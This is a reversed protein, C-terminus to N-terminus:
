FLELQKHPKRKPLWERRDLSNCLDQPIEDLLPSPNMHLVRGNLSRRNVRSLILRSRARTMGVYFLRREEADDQSGFLKCPILLHECGTIFVVPWELGKAAHLSMLALRDGLFIAHDIARDLSLMDLFDELNGEFDVALHKLRRSADSAEESSCDFNHEALAQTIREPLPHRAGLTEVLAHKQHSHNSFFADYQKAFYANGPYHLTQLCRWIVNVPYRSVLPTEGSRVFPIGARDMASELADGQANLRFLVAIDGFAISLEGEHSDVRGSDLSFYTTGGILREVQEVIMEAEESETRCSSLAIHTEGPSECQLSKRKGMLAATAKLIVETSRYNRTLTVIGARPFDESFRHFSNVDAGRFGYIAQDPDGIAFITASGSHVLKKLLQVQTLNTDQYEDTFIWPFRKGYKFAVEPANTLLRATEVELDNYDLMGLSRLARQYEAFYIPFDVALPNGEFEYSEASGPPHADPNLLHATKIKPLARIFRTIARKGAGAELLCDRAINAADVDSCVTFRSPLGAKEHEIRLLDLCFRHFTSVYIKGALSDQLLRAIRQAMEKAAKRTFTLALVQEPSAVGERLLYAIRHTLTMTKGTGPGAVVLLHGGEHLVADKQEPNLPGIIPDNFSEPVFETQKRKKKPPAKPRSAPDPQTSPAKAKKEFLALQGSLTEKEFEAFLHIFGYQGDYGAERIVQNQRMRKIGEALLPGGIDQIDHVPVEMLIELEPGLELLLKEYVASIKKTQSGCELLESLIEVLPILSFFAKNLKPTDRDALEHIRHLVGITLPRACVPCIGEQEITEGPHLRIQCKRHGDLHYKGEEPYFEVTGVFGDGNTMAKIMHTYDIDTEFINAERGLKSPSHADSNSVLLYDDLASLIRNMPPDSSLGTELACIHSTLDEFCEELSDFGSKSGFVSFWPTWIHAPVFFADECAELAIELLDRSDLGLIPRGDSTINGIRDLRKNLKLVSAMDPMLILHHAKRTKGNKKYICSIEGTLMFRTIRSCSTPLKTTVKRQLDSKLKYLGAEAEVLKEQIETVWGPHTFDGTGIVKIGKKSAWLALHEPDLSKSTARSFHSHIHLDAIFRM